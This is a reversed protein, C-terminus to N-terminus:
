PITIATFAVSRGPHFCRCARTRYSCRRQFGSGSSSTLTLRTDGVQRDPGQRFKLCLAIRDAEPGDCIGKMRIFLDGIILMSRSSWLLLICHGTPKFHVTHSTASTLNLNSGDYRLSAALPIRHSSLNYRKIWLGLYAHRVSPPYWQSDIRLPKGSKASVVLIVFTLLLFKRTIPSVPTFEEPSIETFFVAEGDDEKITPLDVNTECLLLEGEQVEAVVTIEIPQQVEIVEDGQLADVYVSKLSDTRVVDGGDVPVTELSTGEETELSAREEKMENGGQVSSIFSEGGDFQIEQVQGM